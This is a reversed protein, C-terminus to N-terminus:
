NSTIEHFLKDTLNQRRKKLSHINAFNLAQDYTAKPFIVKMARKQILELDNSLFQTLSDHFVPSAYEVVPRICTIYFLLLEKTAVNSRKLQSLFYLRKRAKKTIENVHKNWKLDNSVHLGLIKAHDVVELSKDNISIPDFQTPKSSFGIRLEKCKGENFQFKLLLGLLRDVNKHNVCTCIAEM